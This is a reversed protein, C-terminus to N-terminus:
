QVKIQEPGITQLAARACTKVVELETVSPGGNVVIRCRTDPDITTVVHRFKEGAQVARVCGVDGVDNTVTDGAAKCKAGLEAEDVHWWCYASIQCLEDGPLVGMAGGTKAELRAQQSATPRKGTTKLRCISTADAELNSVDQIEVERGVLPALLEASVLQACPIKIGSPVAPPMARPQSRPKTAETKGKGASPAVQETCGVGSAFALLALAQAIAIRM